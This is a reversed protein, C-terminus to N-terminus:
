KPCSKCISRGEGFLSQLFPSGRHKHEVSTVPSAHAQDLETLEFATELVELVSFIRDGDDCNGHVIALSSLLRLALKRVQRDDGIRTPFHALAQIDDMRLRPMAALVGGGRCCDQYIAM